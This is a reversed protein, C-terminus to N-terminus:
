VIAAALVVLMVVAISVKVVFGLLRGGMAALGARFAEAASQGESGAAIAAGAFAGCLAGLLAGLGFLLPAGAIGGVLAGAIAAVAVRRSPRHGSVGVAGAGFEIAEGTVQIREGAAHAPAAILLAIAALYPKHM